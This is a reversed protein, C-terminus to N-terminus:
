VTTTVAAAAAESEITNDLKSCITIINVPANLTTVCSCRVTENTCIIFIVEM